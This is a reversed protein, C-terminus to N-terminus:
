ELLQATGETFLNKMYAKVWKERYVHRKKIYDKSEKSLSENALIQEYEEHYSDKDECYPM